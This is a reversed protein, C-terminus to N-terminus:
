HVKLPCCQILPKWEWGKKGNIKEISIFLIIKINLLINVYRNTDSQENTQLVTEFQFAQIHM